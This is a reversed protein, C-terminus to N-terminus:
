QVRVFRLGIMDYSIVQGNADREINEIGILWDPSVSPLATTPSLLNLNHSQIFSFGMSDVGYTMAALVSMFNGENVPVFTGVWPLFTEGAIFYEKNAQAAIMHYGLDGIRLIVGKEGHAEVEEFWLRGLMFCYFSGDSLPTLPLPPIGAVMPIHMYLGDLGLQVVYYEMSGLYIGEYVTLQEHTLDIAVAGFDARPQMLDLSGTKQLVANSLITTALPSAGFIGTASNTTVFVGLSAAENFQMDSHFHVWNGGHGTHSFGEMGTMHMVGFGYKLGQPTLSFDFDHVQKMQQVSDASLLDGGGNLFIHMFAAMDHATSFIGGTPLGNPYMFIDPQASNIYPAALYSELSKDFGFSSRAMGAPVLINQAMYNAFGDFVNDAGTIAAILVGLLNYGNNNYTFLTDEPASMFYSELNALFNNLYDPHHEGTTLSGYGLLNPLIGSTHTLLMRTTINKYDGGGNPLPALYFDPLYETIPTDLDILGQEVLQMIAMATFTKSVSALNFITNEDVYTNNHTDAFGFGQTWTFGTEADVLAVSIGTIDLQQMLQFATTVATLITNTYAWSPHLYLFAADFLSIFTRDGFHAIPFNLTLPAGNHMAADSGSTFVFTGVAEDPLTVTISAYTENWVVDAGHSEFVMRLPLYHPERLEEASVAFVQATILLMVAILSATLRKLFNNTKNMLQNGGSLSIFNNLEKKV